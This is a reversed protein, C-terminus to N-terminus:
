QEIQSRMLDASKLYHRAYDLLEGDTPHDLPEVGEVKSMLKPHAQKIHKVLENKESSPGVILIAGASLIENVVDELFTQDESAHGGGVSNAKHRRQERNHPHVVIKKTDDANFRFIRAQQHDIWVVAHYHDSM